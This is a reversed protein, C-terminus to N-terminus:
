CGESFGVLFPQDAVGTSHTLAEEEPPMGIDRGISALASLGETVKQLQVIILLLYTWWQFTNWRVLMLWRSDVQAQETEFCRETLVIM